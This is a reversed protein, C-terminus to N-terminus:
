ASAEGASAASNCFTTVTDADKTLHGREHRQFM